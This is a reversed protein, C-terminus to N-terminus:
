QGGLLIPNDEKNTSLAMRLKQWFVSKDEGPKPWCLYTQKKVLKRMRHYPSLHQAPIDELFVLILVDKKEDFLRFSAVQIERSCWESGLYDRTVVCITKRSSYIGEVINDIIPKGPEFDRHHLCLRWGQETELNPLLERHVWREDQSNYSIFADYLFGHQKQKRQGMSDYLYALFLYYAYVLQFRMFNYIFSVLLTVIVLSFSGAFYVFELNQTCSDTKLDELLGQFTSPYMCYYKNFYVVQTHKSQNAWHLLWENSCDCVFPNHRLDIYELNPLSQIITQNMGQIQNNMVQLNRLQSLKADIVFNLSPLLSHAIHLESLASVPHFIMPSLPKTFINQNLYLYQLKPTYKFTNPHVYQINLNSGHFEILSNLGMLLNCPLNNIGQRQSNFLLVKLSKLETFPPAKLKQRDFAIVNDNLNLVELNPLGKFIDPNTLTNQKLHNANLDLEKLSHLGEFAHKSIRNIQNDFIYLHELAPLGSFSGEDLQSIKNTQLHLYRLNPLYANFMKGVDLLKNSGLKLEQLNPLNQFTCQSIKYIKNHYLYLTKLLKLNSFDSCTILEINNNSFDLMSISPLVHTINNLETINTNRVKLTMLHNLGEFALASMKCTTTDRFQMTRLQHCPKFFNDSLVPINPQELRLTQLHSCTRELFYQVKQTNLNRIELTKLSSNFTQIIKVTLDESTQLGSVNLTEVSGLFSSDEVIWQFSGNYSCNSIDLYGLYPLINNTIQFTKLPNSFLNLRRLQLPSTSLNHSVFHIIKNNEVNFEFLNPLHLIIKVSELTTLQNSALNVHTLNYLFHFASQDIDVIENLDLRLVTLSVLGHLFGRTVHKLKNRYMYLEQLHVLEQFTGDNVKSINNYSVNLARLYSVNRFDTVKLKSIHNRSLDLKMTHVPLPLPVMELGMARCSVNCMTDNPLM